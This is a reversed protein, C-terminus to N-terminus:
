RLGAAIATWLCLKTITKQTATSNMEIIEPWKSHADTVFLYSKNIFPGAYDVHIRQCPAAPWVWLHLPAVPSSNKIGQCAVCGQARDEFDKDLRLYWFYSRAVSKMRLAVPHDQHPEEILAHRFKEPVIVHIGWLLCSRLKLVFNMKMNTFHNTSTM